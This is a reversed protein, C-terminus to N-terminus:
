ETRLSDRSGAPKPIGTAAVKGTIPQSVRITLLPAIVRLAKPLFSFTAPLRGLYIGDAIISNEAGDGRIILDQYNGSFLYGRNGSGAVSIDENLILRNKKLSHPCLQYYDFGNLNFRIKKRFPLKPGKTIRNGLLVFAFIYQGEFLLDGKQILSITKGQKKPHLLLPYKTLEILAKALIPLRAPSLGIAVDNLVFRSRPIGKKDIFHCRILDLYISQRKRVLELQNKLDGPLGLSSAITTNKRDPIFALYTKQCRDSLGYFATNIFQSFFRDGGVLIFIDYKEANDPMKFFGSEPIFLDYPPLQSDFVTQYREWFKATVSSTKSNVVVLYKTGTNETM